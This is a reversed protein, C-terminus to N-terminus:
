LQKGLASQMSGHLQGHQTHHPCNSRTSSESGPVLEESGVMGEASYVVDEDLGLSHYARMQSALMVTM